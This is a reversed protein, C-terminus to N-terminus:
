IKFIKAFIQLFQFDMPNRPNEPIKPLDPLIMVGGSKRFFNESTSIKEPLFFIKKGRTLFFIKKGRASREGRTLGTPRICKKDETSPCSTWCLTEGLTPSVRQHRGAAPYCAERAALFTTHADARRTLREPRLAALVRHTPLRVRGAHRLSYGGPPALGRVGRDPSQNQTGAPGAARGASRAPPSEPWGRRARAHRAAAPTWRSLWSIACYSSPLPRLGGVGGPSQVRLRFGSRINARTQGNM